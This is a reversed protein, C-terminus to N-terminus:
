NGKDGITSINPWTFEYVHDGKHDELLSCSYNKDNWFGTYIAKCNGKTVKTM